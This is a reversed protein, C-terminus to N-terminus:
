MGGMMPGLMQQMQEMDKNTLNLNVTMDNGSTAVKLKDVMAAAPGLMPKMQGIMPMVKEKAGAAEDASAFRVGLDLGLGSKFDLSGYLGQPAVQLPNQSMGKALETGDRPSVAFWVSAGQNAASAVDAFAKHSDLGDKGDIRAQLAAKDAQNPALVMTKDDVWGILTEESKENTVKLFDGDEEVKVKDGEKKAMGEFCTKVQAKELGRVLVTPKESDASDVGVQLSHQPRAQGAESRGNVAFLSIDLIRRGAGVFVGPSFSILFIAM